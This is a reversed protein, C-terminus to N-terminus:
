YQFLLVLFIILSILFDYIHSKKKKFYVLLRSFVKVGNQAPLMIVIDARRTKSILQFVSKIPKKKWGITEFYDIDRFVTSEKLAYYLERTKVPQGGLDQNVFDFAGVILIKKNNLDSYM